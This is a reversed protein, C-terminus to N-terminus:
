PTPRLGLVHVNHSWLFPPTSDNDNMETLPTYRLTGFPGTPDKDYHIEGIWIGIRRIENEDGEYRLDWGALLPLAYEFSVREIRFEKAVVDVFGVNDGGSAEIPM